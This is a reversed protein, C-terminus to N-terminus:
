RSHPGRVASEVDQAHEVVVHSSSELLQAVVLRRQSSREISGLHRLGIPLAQYPTVANEPIVKQQSAFSQAQAMTNKSVGSRTPCEFRTTSLRKNGRLARSAILVAGPDIMQYVTQKPTM